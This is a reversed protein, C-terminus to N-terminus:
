HSTHSFLFSSSTIVQRSNEYGDKIFEYLHEKSRLEAYRRLLAWVEALCTHSRVFSILILFNFRLTKCSIGITIKSETLYKHFTILEDCLKEGGFTYYVMPRDTAVCAILQLLAKLRKNGNYAGCGWNGTAVGPALTPM